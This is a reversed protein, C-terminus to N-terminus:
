KYSLYKNIKNIYQHSLVPKSALSIQHKLNAITSLLYSKPTTPSVTSFVYPTPTVLNKINTYLNPKKPTIEVVDVPTVDYAPRATTAIVHSNRRSNPNTVFLDKLEDYSPVVKTKADQNAYASFKSKHPQYPDNLESSYDMLEKSPIEASFKFYDNDKTRQAKDSSEIFKENYHELYENNNDTLGGSGHDIIDVKTKDVYASKTQYNNYPQYDNKNAYDNITDFNKDHNAYIDNLNSYATPKALGPINVGKNNQIHQRIFEDNEFSDPDAAHDNYPSINHKYTTPVHNTKYQNDKHIDVDISNDQNHQEDYRVDAKYGNEDATYSVIQMRGDPLRVRYEGNTASGTSQQSHSFDDGTKHDKVTYSFAYNEGHNYEKSNDHDGENTPYYHDPSEKYKSNTQPQSYRDQNGDGTVEYLPQVDRQQLMEGTDPNYFPKKQVTDSIPKIERMMQSVLPSNTEDKEPDKPNKQTVTNGPDDANQVPSVTPLETLKEFSYSQHEQSHSPRRRLYIEENDTDTLRQWVNHNPVKESERSGRTNFDYEQPRLKSYGSIKNEISFVPRIRLPQPNQSPMRRFNRVYMNPTTRSFDLRDGSKDNNRSLEHSYYKRRLVHSKYEIPSRTRYISYSPKDRDQIEYSKIKDPDRIPRVLIDRDSDIYPHERSNINRRSYRYHAYQPRRYPMERRRRRDELYARRRTKMDDKDNDIGAELDREIGRHVQHDSDEYYYAERSYLPGHYYRIQKNKVENDHMLKRADLKPEYDEYDHYFKERQGAPGQSGYGLKSVGYDYVPTVTAVSYAFPKYNKNRALFEPKFSVQHFQSQATLSNNRNLESRAISESLPRSTVILPTPPPPPADNPFLIPGKKANKHQVFQVPNFLPRPSTLEQSRVGPLVLLLLLIM